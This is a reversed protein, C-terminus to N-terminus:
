QDTREAVFVPIERDTAAMYEAYPPFAAVSRNWWEAREDGSVLRATANFPQPGDQVQVAANAILNHYWGPHAPAGGKSAILAYAGEHEVRMLPVKRLLGSKHGLTAMIIIPLGTDRLTAGEAGGTSEYLEVQDAVWSWTSAGYEANTNLADMAEPYPDRHVRGWRHALCHWGRAARAGLTM